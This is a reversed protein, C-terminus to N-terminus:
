NKCSLFRVSTFSMKITELPELKVGDRSLHLIKGETWVGVHVQGKRRMYAVLGEQPNAHVNLRRLDSLAFVRDVPPRMLGNLAVRLGPGKGSAEWLDCVFHVCNYEREDYTKDFYDNYNM